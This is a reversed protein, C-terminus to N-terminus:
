QNGKEIIDRYYKAGRPSADPAAIFLNGQNPNFGYGLLHAERGHCQTTMEVGTIFGIGRRKLAEQFRTQGDVSDHDTLAAYRVGAAAFSEALAEPTSEGDSFISHCHFNVRTTEDM